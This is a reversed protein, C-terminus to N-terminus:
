SAFSQSPPRIRSLRFILRDGEARSFRFKLITSDSAEIEVTKTWLGEPPDKLKQLHIEQPSASVVRAWPGVGEFDVTMGVWPGFDYQVFAAPAPRTAPPPPAQVEAKVPPPAKPAKSRPQTAQWYEQYYVLAFLTVNTILIMTPYIWGARAQERFNVVGYAIFLLLVILVSTWSERRGKLMMFGVFLSALPMVWQILNGALFMKWLFPLTWRNPVDLVLVSGFFNFIPAVLMLIGAARITSARQLLKESAM